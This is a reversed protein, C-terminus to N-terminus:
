FRFTWQLTLEDFDAGSNHRFFEHEYEAKLAMMRTFDYRVGVIPSWVSYNQEIAALVPDNEPSHRWQLRAYPRLKGFKRSIQTYAASTWHASDHRPENRMFVGENLWEWNANKYVAYAALIIQDTRGITEPTLTDHYASVGVTVGPFWEPRASLALNFAKYDNDDEIVLPDAGPSYNRGNSVEFAYRMNLKGSPLDGNLAIGNGHIPLIGDDDEFQYIEPREVTTQFYTGNHFTPSYYGISNHYRGADINFYDNFRYSLLVREIEFAFGDQDGAIIFDGLVMAQDSLKATIVPDLDGLAFTNHDGHESSVHYTVDGLFNFSIKPWVERLVTADPEPAAPTGAKLNKIQSELEDVRRAKQELDNVRQLLKKVVEPDVTNTGPAQASAAVPLGVLAALGLSTLLRRKDRNPIFPSM